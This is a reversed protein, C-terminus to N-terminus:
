VHNIYCRRIAANSSPYACSVSPKAPFQQVRIQEGFIQPFVLLACYTGWGRSILWLSCLPPPFLQTTAIKANIMVLLASNTSFLAQNALQTFVNMVHIKSLFPLLPLLTVLITSSSSLFTISSNWLIRDASTVLALELHYRVKTSSQKGARGEGVLQREWIYSLAIVSTTNNVQHLQM